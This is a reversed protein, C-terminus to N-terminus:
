PQQGGGYSIGGDSNIKFIPKTSESKPGLAADSTLLASIRSAINM